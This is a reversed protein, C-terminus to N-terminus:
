AGSPVRLAALESLLEEGMLPQHSVSLGCLCGLVGPQEGGVPQLVCLFPGFICLQCLTQPLILQLRFSTSSSFFRGLIKGVPIQRTPTIESNHTKKHWVINEDGFWM